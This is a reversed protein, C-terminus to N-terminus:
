SQINRQPKGPPETTFFGCAISSVHTRDRPWSSGRSFPIAVWELIRAQLIGHVSSGTPSYDLPNCLTLCSQIISCSGSNNVLYKHSTDGVPHVHIQALEPLQHHVPFGPMSCDMPNCLTLCSQAVSSVSLPLSTLHDPKMRGDQSHRTLIRVHMNHYKNDGLSESSHCLKMSYSVTYMSWKRHETFQVSM